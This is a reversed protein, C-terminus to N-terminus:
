SNSFMKKIKKWLKNGYVDRYVQPALRELEEFSKQVKLRAEEDQETTGHEDVYIPEGYLNILRCPGLPFRMKDWSNFKLLTIDESYWYIPVIPAGSKKAVKIVGNKVVKAPGRPGDVMMAVDEGEKLSNIMQLTAEVSGEKGKSGRINKFGWKETTRAIIEGDISRSILINTRYKEELGHVCCQHAHWTAYICPKKCPNNVEKIYTFLEQVRFLRYVLKAAIDLKRGREIRVM